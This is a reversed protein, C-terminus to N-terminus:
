PEETFLQEFRLPPRGRLDYIAIGQRPKPLSSYDLRGPRTRLLRNEADRVEVEVVETVWPAQDGSREAVVTVFAAEPGCAAVAWARVRDWANRALWTRVAAEYEDPRLPRM